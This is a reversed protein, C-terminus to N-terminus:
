EKRNKQKTPTKLYQHMLEYLYIIAGTFACAGLLFMLTKPFYKWLLAFFAAIVIVYVAMMWSLMGWEIKHEYQKGPFRGHKRFHELLEEKEDFRKHLWETANEPVESMKYKKIHIHVKLKKKPDSQRRYLDVLTPPFYQGVRVDYPEFALTWDSIYEFADRYKMM